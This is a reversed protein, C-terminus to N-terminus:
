ALCIVCATLYEKPSYINDASPFHSLSIITRSESASFIIAFDLTNPDNTISRDRDHISARIIDSFMPYYRQVDSLIASGRRVDGFRASGRRVEGFRASGRRVEGFM